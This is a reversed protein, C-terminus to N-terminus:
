EKGSFFSPLILCFTALLLIIGLLGKIMHTDVLPLLSAGILVGFISGMGMLLAVVLVRNPLHGLRRYTFAGAAVTPVSVLLSITGAEKVPLAFLYILAPIRMEGGAVGLVGSLFAIIFAVVGALIWRAAGQPQFLVHESQAIGEYVMWVGVAFLYICVVAKLRPSSFKHAQRSGIVAGVFSAVVMISGLTLDDSNWEQQGWRRIVGVVVVFLGIVMNAGAAIKIPLRLVNLLVPIRFEGGGVGILGAASGIVLGFVFGLTGDQVTSRKATEVPENEPRAMTAKGAEVEVPTPQICRWV